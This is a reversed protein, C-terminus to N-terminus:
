AQRDRRRSLGGLLALGAGVSLAAPEPALFAIGGVQLSTGFSGIDVYSTDGDLRSLFGGGADFGIVFTTGDVPDIALESVDGRNPPTGITNSAPAGFLGTIEFVRQAGINNPDYGILQGTTARFGLADMDAALNAATNLTAGALSVEAVDSEANGGDPDFSLLLRDGLPDYTLGAPKPGLGPLGTLAVVQLQQTQADLLGLATAGTAERVLLAFRGDSAHHTLAFTNNGAGVSFTFQSTAAGTATDIRLFEANGTPDANTIGFLRAATAPTALALVVGLTVLLSGFRM